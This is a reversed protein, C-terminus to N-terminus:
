NPYNVLIKYKGKICMIPCDTPKSYLNLIERSYINYHLPSSAPFSTFRGKECFNQGPGFRMIKTQAYNLMIAVTHDVKLPLGPNRIFSSSQSLKLM